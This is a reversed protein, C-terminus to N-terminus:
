NNASNKKLWLMKLDKMWGSKKILRGSRSSIPPSPTSQEAAALTTNDQSGNIKNPHTLSSEEQPASTSAPQCVELGKFDLPVQENAPEPETDPIASGPLNPLKKFHSSNHTVEKQDTLWKATIMSGKVDLFTYPVPEFYLSAKKLRRQKVLTIDGANLNHPKVQWKQDAYAKMKAKSDKDKQM